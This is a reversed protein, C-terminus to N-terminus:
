GAKVDALWQRIIAAPLVVTATRSFRAIVIGCWNGNADYVPAGCDTSKVHADCLWAEKFGDKRRSKGGEFLETPHSSTMVPREALLINLHLLSDGRHISLRINQSPFYKLLEKLVAVANEQKVSNISVLQDGQRLGGKIAPGNPDLFEVVINNNVDALRAGFYGGSTYPPLTISATGAVGRQQQGSPLPVYIFSGREPQKAATSRELGKSEPLRSETYLLVLDNETDRAIVKLPIQKAAHIVVPSDGVAASKSVLWTGKRGTEWVTGAIDQRANNVTSSIRVPASGQKLSITNVPHSLKQSLPLVSAVAEDEVPYSTYNKQQILSSWYKRYEDVPAHCNVSEIALCRSNMGIVRGELDFIPGGSDGVEMTCTTVIFRNTDLPETVYGFRVAPLPQITSEPYSMMICPDGKQLSKSSGMVAYPWTGPTLIKMVAMDPLTQEENLDIRGMGVAVAEKGDPFIIRYTKGPRVAHAVSLLYGDATVSVASFPGGTQAQQVTDYSFAKVAANWSKKIAQQIAAQTSTTQQGYAICAPLLFLGLAFGFIRNRNM